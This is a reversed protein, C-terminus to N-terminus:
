AASRIDGLWPEFGDEGVEWYLGRDAIEADTLLCHHFATAIDDPTRDVGTVVLRTLPSELRWERSFGISVLGGAGDWACAHGPRSPLWFCGRSRHPGGGLRQLSSMLRGPHLPRESSLDLTWARGSPEPLDGRRVDAVWRETVDCDHLGDLM